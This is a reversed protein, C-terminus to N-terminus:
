RSADMEPHRILRGIFFILYLVSIAIIVIPVITLAFTVYGIHVSYDTMKDSLRATGMQIAEVLRQQNHRYDDLDKRFIGNYLANAEAQRHNRCLMFITDRLANCVHRAKQTEEILEPSQEWIHTRRSLLEFLTDNAATRGKLGIICNEIEASDDSNLLQNMLTLSISGNASIQQTNAHDELSKNLLETYRQDIRHLYYVNFIGSGTLLIMFLILVYLLVKNSEAFKKM